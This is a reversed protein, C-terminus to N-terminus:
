LDFTTEATLSCQAISKECMNLFTIYKLLKYVIFIAYKYSLHQATIAM